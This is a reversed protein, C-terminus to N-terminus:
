SQWVLTSKSFDTININVQFWKNNVYHFEMLPINRLNSNKFYKDLTKQNQPNSLTYKFSGAFRNLDMFIGCVGKTHLQKCNKLLKALKNWEGTIENNRDINLIISNPALNLNTNELYITGELRCDNGFVVMENGSLNVLSMDKLVKTNKLFLQHQTNSNKIIPKEMVIVDMGLERLGDNDVQLVGFDGLPQTQKILIRHSDKTVRYSSRNHGSILSQLLLEEGIEKKVLIAM